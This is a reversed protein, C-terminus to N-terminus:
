QEGELLKRNTAALVMIFDHLTKISAPVPGEECREYFTALWASCEALDALLSPVEFGLIDIYLINGNLMAYPEGSSMLDLPEKKM